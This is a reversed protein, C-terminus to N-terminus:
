LAHVVELFTHIKAPDKDGPAAEVGSSVDVTTAGSQAVARGVNGADLGGALMWPLPWDRGGLIAWDFPLANGGPRTAAAPPKADFMLWDAVALYPQVAALDEAAAVGVVKMVPRKLRARIDAVRAPPERGHLQLLDLDAAAVASDLYADDADVFLGVKRIHAPVLGALEAAADPTISRPSPPFFVLGVFRAGGDIAARMAPAANIGCIKAAVAM